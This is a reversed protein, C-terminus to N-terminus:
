RLIERLASVLNSEPSKAAFKNSGLYVDKGSTIVKVLSNCAESILVPDRVPFGKNLQLLVTRYDAVPLIKLVNLFFQFSEESPKDPIEALVLRDKNRNKIQEFYKQSPLYKSLVPASFETQAMRLGHYISNAFPNLQSIWLTDGATEETIVLFEFAISVFNGELFFKEGRHRTIKGEYGEAAMDSRLRTLFNFNGLYASPMGEFQSIEALCREIERHFENRESPLLFPLELKRQIKRLLDVPSVTNTSQHNDSNM